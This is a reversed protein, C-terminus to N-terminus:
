KALKSDGNCPGGAGVVCIGMEKIGTGSNTNDSGGSSYAQATTTMILTSVLLLSLSGIGIVLCIFMCTNKHHHRNGVESQTIYDTIDNVSEVAVNTRM